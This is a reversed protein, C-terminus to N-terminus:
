SSIKTMNIMNTQRSENQNQHFTVLKKLKSGGSERKM